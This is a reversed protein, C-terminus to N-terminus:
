NLFNELTKSIKKYDLKRVTEKAVLVRKICEEIREPPSIYIYKSEVLNSLFKKHKDEKKGSIDEPKFVIVKKGSSIAESVMSISEGSVIVLDSLGLIAPVVGPINNENAIVLLKCKPYNRFKQKILEDVAKSTRRSTTLLIEMDLEESVNMIQTLISHILDKTLLYNKTGGGILVGIKLRENHLRGTDTLTYGAVQLKEVNKKMLEEDILNLAGKTTIVNGRAKVIDHESIIALNFEKLRVISPKMIIINKSNSQRKMFINVGELSSGCSIIIDAYLKHLRQYCDSTLFIKLCRMCGTCRRSSTLACINTFFKFIKSKFKVRVENIKFPFGPYKQKFIKEILSGLARSQNLHGAKGDHLILVSGPPTSKWRKHFWLWQSPYMRIYDGLLKSFKELGKRIFKEKGLTYDLNLPPNIIMRHYPGKERIIFCPIVISETKFSFALPGPSTSAPRKLFDVFIGKKGADQDALIGVPQHNKLARIIERTEFGKKIVKSGKSERYKNLLENLQEPKQERALIKAPFGKMAGILGLLEWNGFHATVLIVGRNSELASKIYNIGEV